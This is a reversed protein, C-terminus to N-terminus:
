VSKKPLNEQRKFGETLLIETGEIKSVEQGDILFKVSNVENLETLTNVISYISLNITDNNKEQNQIFEKSLDLLVMDGILTANNIKTDEPIASKLKDNKPKEMLFRVLTDYPNELLNKVDIVRAEPLLTNTDTNIYYLSVITQREQEETIEEGPTIEALDQGEGVKELNMITIVIIICLVIGLLILFIKSKKMVFRKGKMNLKIDLYIKLCSLNHIFSKSM